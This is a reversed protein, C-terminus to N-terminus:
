ATPARSCRPLHLAPAARGLGTAGPAGAPAGGALADRVRALILERSANAPGPAASVPPRGWWERFSEGALPRLDRSRTWAGLPGPLRRVMGARVLPRQALRGLREAAAFRRRGGFLWRAGRM